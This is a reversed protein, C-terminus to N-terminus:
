HAGRKFCAVHLYKEFFVGLNVIFQMFSTFYVPVLCNFVSIRGRRCLVVVKKFM